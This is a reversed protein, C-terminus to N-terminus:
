GAVVRPFGASTRDDENVILRQMQRGQVWANWARAALVATDIQSIRERKMAADRLRIHLQYAPDFESETRGSSVLDSFAFARERSTARAALVLVLGFPSTRAPAFRYGRIKEAVAAVLPERGIMEILVAPEVQQALRGMCGQDHHHLLRGIAAVASAARVASRIERGM